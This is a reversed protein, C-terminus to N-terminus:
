INDKRLVYVSVSSLREVPKRSSSLECEILRVGLCMAWGANKETGKGLKGSYSLRFLLRSDLVRRLKGDLEKVGSCAKRLDLFETGHM